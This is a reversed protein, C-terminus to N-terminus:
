RSVRLEVGLDSCFSGIENVTRKPPMELSKGPIRTDPGSGLSRKWTVNTGIPLRALVRKLNDKGVVTMKVWEDEVINQCLTVEALTKPRNTGSILTFHWQGDPQWSYLEYGKMSRPLGVAIPLEDNGCEAAAFLVCTTAGLCAVGGGIDGDSRLAVRVPDEPCGRVLIPKLYTRPGAVLEKIQLDLVEMGTSRVNSPCGHPWVSRKRPLFRTTILSGDVLMFTATGTTRDISLKSIYQMTDESASGSPKVAVYDGSTVSVWRDGLSAVLIGVLIGIIISGSFIRAMLLAFHRPEQKRKVSFLVPLAWM